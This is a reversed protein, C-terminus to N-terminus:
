GPKRARLLRERLNGVVEATIAEKEAAKKFLIMTALAERDIRQRKFTDLIQSALARIESFRSLRGYVLALDLSALAFEYPLNKELFLSRVEDFAEVAEDWEEFAAALEGELWRVRIRDISNALGDVLRSVEGVLSRAESGRGLRILNAAQNFRLVSLLRPTRNGDILESAAALVRLAEESEGQEQFTAAKNLLIAGTAGPRAVRLARNHLDLAERFRRQERRLSAELDLLDSEDLLGRPDEGSEWLKRGRGFAREASVYDNVVRKANGLFMWARGQVRARWAPSGHVHEAIFIALEALEIAEFPDHAAASESEACVRVCFQWDRYAEAGQVLLRRLQPGYQKLREWLAEVESESLDRPSSSALETCVVASARDVIGSLAAMLDGLDGGVDLSPAPPTGEGARWITRLVSDLLDFIAPDVDAGEALRMLTQERPLELGAEYRSVQSQDLGAARALETQSWRRLRRLLLIKTGAIWREERDSAAVAMKKGAKRRM